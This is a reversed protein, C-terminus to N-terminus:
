ERHYSILLLFQNCRELQAKFCSFRDKYAPIFTTKRPWVRNERLPTVAKPILAGSISFAIVGRRSCLTQQALSSYVNAHIAFTVLTNWYMKQPSFLCNLLFQDYLKDLNFPFQVYLWAHLRIFAFWDIFNLITKLNSVTLSLSRAM